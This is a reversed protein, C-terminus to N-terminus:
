ISTVPVSLSARPANGQETSAALLVAFGGAPDEIGAFETGNPSDGDKCSVFIMAALSTLAVRDVGFKATVNKDCAKSLHLSSNTARM